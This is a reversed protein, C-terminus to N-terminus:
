LLHPAEKETLLATSQTLLLFARQHVLATSKEISTVLASHMTCPQLRSVAPKEPGAMTCSASASAQRKLAPKDLPVILAVGLRVLAVIQPLHGHAGHVLLIAQVGHGDVEDAM